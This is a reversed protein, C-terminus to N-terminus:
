WKLHPHSNMKVEQKELRELRDTSCTLSDAKKKVRFSFAFHLLIKSINFIIPKLYYM